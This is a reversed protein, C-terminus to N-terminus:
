PSIDGLGVTSLSTFMYYTVKIFVQRLSSDYLDFTDMFNADSAYPYLWSTEDKAEVQIVECAILWVM